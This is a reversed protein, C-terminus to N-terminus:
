FNLCPLKQPASEFWTASGKQQLEHIAHYLLERPHNHFRSHTCNLSANPAFAVGLDYGFTLFLTGENGFDSPLYALADNIWHQDSLM